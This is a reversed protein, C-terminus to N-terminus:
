LINIRPNIAKLSKRILDNKLGQKALNRALKSRASTASVLLHFRRREIYSLNFKRSILEAKKRSLGRKNRLINSLHTPNLELDAAYKRLSYHVDKMRRFNFENLLYIIFETRHTKNIKKDERNKAYTKDAKSKNM